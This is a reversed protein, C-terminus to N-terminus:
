PPVCNGTRFLEWEECTRGDPLVCYGVEGPPTNVITLTGGLQEACYVSAPNAIQMPVERVEPEGVMFTPLCVLITIALAVLFPHNLRGKVM